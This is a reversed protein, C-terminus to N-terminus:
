VNERSYYIYNGSSDLKFTYVCNFTNNDDSNNNTVKEYIKIETTTAVVKEISYSYDGTGSTDIGGKSYLVYADLESIYVFIGSSLFDKKMISSTAVDADKGFLEKYVRSVNNLKVAKTVSSCVYDEYGSISSPINSCNVDFFDGMKLNVYVLSMKTSETMNSIVSGTEGKYMWLPSKENFDHVRSYLIKVLLDEKGIGSNDVTPTDEKKLGVISYYVVFFTVLVVFFIVIPIITGRNKKLFSSKKNGVSAMEEFKM